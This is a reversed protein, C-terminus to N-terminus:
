NSRNSSADRKAAGASWLPGRRAVEHALGIRDCDICILAATGDALAIPEIEVRCLRCCFFVKAM